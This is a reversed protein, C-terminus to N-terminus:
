WVGRYFTLVLPGRSLLDSSRVTGGDSDSLEFDPLRNGAVPIRSMIGSARLEEEAREMVAKADAPVEKLFGAKIRDLREKLTSM